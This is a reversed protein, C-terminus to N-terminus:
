RNLMNEIEGLFAAPGFPKALYHWGNGNAPPYETDGSMLLIPCSCIKTTRLALEVGSMGPMDIDTILLRVLEPEREIAAVAEFAGPLPSVHYGANRAVTALLDRLM